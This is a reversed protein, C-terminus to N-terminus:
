TSFLSLHEYIAQYLRGASEVLSIVNSFAGQTCAQKHAIISHRLERHSDDFGVLLDILAQDAPGQIVRPTLVNQIQDLDWKVAEYYDITIDSPSMKRAVRMPLEYSRLEDFLDKFCQSIEPNPPKIHGEFIAGVADFSLDPFHLFTSGAIECLHVAIARLTFEEAKAWERKRRYELFWDIVLLGLLISAANGAIEALLNGSFDAPNLALGVGTSLLAALGLLILLWKGIPDSLYSKLAQKM